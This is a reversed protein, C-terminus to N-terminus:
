RFDGVANQGHHGGSFLLIGDGDGDRFVTREGVDLWSIPAAVAARVVATRALGLVRRDFSCMSLECSM